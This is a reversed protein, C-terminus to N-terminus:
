TEPGITWFVKTDPAVISDNLAIVLLLLPEQRVFLSHDIEVTIEETELVPVPQPMLLAFAAPPAVFTTAPENGAGVVVETLGM